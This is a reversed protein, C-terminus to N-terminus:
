NPRAAVRARELAACLARMPEEPHRAIFDAVNADTPPAGSLAIALGASAMTALDPVGGAPHREREARLHLRLLTGTPLDLHDSLYAPWRGPAAALHVAIRARVFAAMDRDHSDTVLSHIADQITEGEERLADIARNCLATLDPRNAADLLGANVARLQLRHLVSVPLALAVRSAFGQPAEQPAKQAAMM